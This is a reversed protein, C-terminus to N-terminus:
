AIRTYYGTAAVYQSGIYDPTTMDQMDMTTNYDGGLNNLFKGNAYSMYFSATGPTAFYPRAPTWTVGHDTSIAMQRYPNNASAATQYLVVKGAGNDVLEWTNTQVAATGVFNAGSMDVPMTVPTWTIGDASYALNYINTSVASVMVFNTGTFLVDSVSESTSFTIGSASTRDTWGSAPSATTAIKGATASASTGVAVFVGAGYAIAKVSTMGVNTSAGVTWSGSPNAAAIYAQEGATATLTSLSVWINNGFGVATPAPLTTFTGGVASWAMGDSSYSLATNAAQGIVLYSGSVALRAGSTSVTGTGSTWAGSLGTNWRPTGSAAAPVVYRGNFYVIRRGPNSGGGANQTRSQAGFVRLEPCSAILNSYTASYAKVTGHRLYEKGEITKNPAGTGLQVTSGLPVGGGFFQTLNSM